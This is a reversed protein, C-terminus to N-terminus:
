RQNMRNLRINKEFIISDLSINFVRSIEKLKNSNPFRKSNEYNSWTDKSVGILKGAQEQTLGYLVRLAKLTIKVDKM